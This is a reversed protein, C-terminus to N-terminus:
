MLSCQEITRVKFKTMGHKIKPGISKATAELHGRQADTLEELPATALQRKLAHLEEKTMADMAEMIEKSAKHVFCKGGNQVVMEKVKLLLQSVQQKKTDVDAKNDFLMYRRNSENLLDDLKKCKKIAEQFDEEELEDKGAFIVIMHDTLKPGFIEKLAQFVKYEEDTFRRDCRLVLLVAHPGPLVNLNEIVTEEYGCEETESNISARSTFKKCGVITNGTASKGVGTKGILILRCREEPFATVETAPTDESQEM